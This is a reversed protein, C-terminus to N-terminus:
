SSAFIGTIVHLASSRLRLPAQKDLNERNTVNLSRITSHALGNEKVSSTATNKPFGQSEIKYLHGQLAQIAEAAHLGHLDLKWIDNENNRIGLIKTAAETNLKDAAHWEERAKMSHQQASYHDGKLFAGAAARSHRSASRNM